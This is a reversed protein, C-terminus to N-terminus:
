FDGLTGMWIPRSSDGSEFQIWVIAGVTPISRSEPPVCPLAWIGMSEEWLTPISIKLRMLNEPDDNDMVTGRYLGYCPENM